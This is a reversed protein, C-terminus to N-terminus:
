VKGQSKEIKCGSGIDDITFLYAQWVEQHCVSNRYKSLKCFVANSIRRYMFTTVKDNQSIYKQLFLLLM